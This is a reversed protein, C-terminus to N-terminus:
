LTAGGLTRHHTHARPRSRYLSAVQALKVSALVLLSMSGAVVLVWRTGASAPIVGGLVLISILGGVVVAAMLAVEGVVAARSNANVRQMSPTVGPTVLLKLILLPALKMFSSYLETSSYIDLADSRGREVSASWELTTPEIHLV